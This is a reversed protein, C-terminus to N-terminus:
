DEGDTDMPPHLPLHVGLQQALDLGGEQNKQWIALFDAVDAPSGMVCASPAGTKASYTVFTVEGM